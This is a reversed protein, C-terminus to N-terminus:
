RDAEQNVFVPLKTRVNAKCVAMKNEWRSPEQTKRPLTQKSQRLVWCCLNKPQAGAATQMWVHVTGSAPCHTPKTM